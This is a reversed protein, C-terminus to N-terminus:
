VPEPPAPKRARLTSGGILLLGLGITMFGALPSQYRDDQVARDVDAFSVKAVGDQVVEWAVRVPEDHWRLLKEEELLSGTVRGGIEVAELRAELAEGYKPFVWRVAEGENAVDVALWREISTRTPVTILGRDVVEGELEVLESRLPRDGIANWALSIAVTIVGIVALVVGATRVVTHDDRTRDPSM